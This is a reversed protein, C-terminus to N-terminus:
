GNRLTLPNFSGSVGSYGAAWVIAAGPSASVSTLQSASGVDPSSVTTWTTGDWHLTLAQPGTTYGVAWVDSASRATIGTLTGAAPSPTITWAAGNWHAILPGSPSNGAAWVDAPSIADASTFVAGTVQPMTVLNWATGDWHVSYPDWINGYVTQLYTGVIWVNSASTASIASMTNQAFTVGNPMPFPPQAAPRTWATGDWQEVLGHASGQNGIAYANTSSIDAVGVLATGPNLPLPDPVNTWTSGDWHITLPSSYGPHKVLNTTGVAWADAASSSSVWGLHVGSTAPFSPPTAQSWATGNWHDVLPLSPAKSSQQGVSGVAWADADTRAAIGNIYADQGTPPSPAVTWGAALVPGTVLVRGDPLLTALGRTHAFNMSGAPTFTGSSAAAAPTAALGAVAAAAALMVVPSLRQRIM